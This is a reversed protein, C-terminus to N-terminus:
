GKVDSKVGDLKDYMKPWFRDRAAWIGGIGFKIVIIAGLSAVVTNFLTDVVDRAIQIQDLAAFGGILWIGWSTATTALPGFSKGATIDRVIPVVKDVVFSTIFVIIIAMFIKPIYAIMSNLAQSVPSDGFAGIAVQAVMLMLGAYLVRVLLESPSGGSSKAMSKGLGTKAIQQDVKLAKFIRRVAARILKAIVLGVVLVVLAGILKPVFDALKSWASEIGQSWEIAAIM